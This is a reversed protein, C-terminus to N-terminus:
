QHTFLDNTLPPFKMVKVSSDRRSWYKAEGEWMPSRKDRKVTQMMWKSQGIVLFIHETYLWDPIWFGEVEGIQPAAAGCICMQFFGGFTPTM